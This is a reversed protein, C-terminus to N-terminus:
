NITLSWKIFYQVCVAISIDFEVNCCLGVCYTEVRLFVLISTSLVM